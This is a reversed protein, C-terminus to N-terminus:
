YKTMMEYVKMLSDNINCKVPLSKRERTSQNQDNILKM